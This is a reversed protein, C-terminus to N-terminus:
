KKREYETIKQIENDIVTFCDMMWVDMHDLDKALPVNFKTVSFYDTIVQWCWDSVVESVNCFFPLQFFMSQGVDFKKENCEKLIRQIEQDIDRFSDFRIKKFLTPSQAIYPLRFRNDPMVYNSFCM